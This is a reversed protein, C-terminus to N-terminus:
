IHILSLLYGARVAHGVIATHDRIPVNDQYYEGEYKDLPVNQEKAFFKSGRTEVYYRALRFYEKNGTAKSLKVLALEIEPHGCYGPRQGPGDGFTRCLLDAFKKAVDLLSTKGTAAHHAVAAEFLHGACYLEHNWALNTFRKDPANIQYYTNLYGDAMQAAAIKAIVGDLRKELAPDPDTALSYACAEITKYLDSDMFVLGKFGTRKGAAALELDEINGAKELQDLSHALSVKRNTERRPSWFRDTVTVQTFPVPELKVLTSQLPGSALATLLAAVLM